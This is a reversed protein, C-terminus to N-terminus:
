HGIMINISTTKGVGNPGLMGFCEGRSVSLSLGRVAYKKSNGDQGSYVKKLNDCILAHSQSSEQLLKEVLEREQAVDAKEMDVSM